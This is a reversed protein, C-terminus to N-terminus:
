TGIETIRVGFNDDVVVVEGRAVCRDNVYLEVPEGALKDLEILSGPGLKLIDEITMETRGIEATVSVSVEALLDLDGVTRTTVEATRGGTDLRSRPKEHKEAAVWRSKKEDGFLDEDAEETEAPSVGIAAPAPEPPHEEGIAPEADEDPEEAPAASEAPQEGIAEVPEDVAQDGEPETATEAEEAAQDAEAEDPVEEDDAEPPRLLADIAAQDLDDDPQQDGAGQTEDPM